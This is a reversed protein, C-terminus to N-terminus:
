AAEGSDGAGTKQKKRASPTSRPAAGAGRPDQRDKEDGIRAAPHTVALLCEAYTDLLWKRDANPPAGVSGNISKKENGAIIMLLKFAILEPSNEGIHVVPADVM